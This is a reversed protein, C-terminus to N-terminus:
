AEGSVGCGARWEGAIARGSDRHNHSRELDRSFWSWCSSCDRMCNSTRRRPKSHLGAQPGKGVQLTVGPLGIVSGTHAAKAQDPTGDPKADSLGSHTHTPDNILKGSDEGIDYAHDNLPHDNPLPGSSPPLKSAPETEGNAASAIAAAVSLNLPMKPQKKLEVSDFAIAILSVHRDSSDAEVKRVHGFVKSGIPIVTGEALILPTVTRAVIEDNVKAKGAKVSTLLEAQVSKVNSGVPAAPATQASMPLRALTGLLISTGILSRHM